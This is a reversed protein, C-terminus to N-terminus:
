YFLLEPIPEADMNQQFNGANNYHTTLVRLCALVRSGFFEVGYTKVYSGESSMIGKERRWKINMLHMKKRCIEKKVLPMEPLLLQDRKGPGSFWNM